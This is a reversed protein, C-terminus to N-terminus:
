DIAQAAAAVVRTGSTRGFLDFRAQLGGFFFFNVKPSPIDVAGAGTGADQVFFMSLGGAVVPAIAIEPTIRYDLGLRLRAIEWGTISTNPGTEPVLWLNRCGTSLGVFPDLSRAPRFHWDAYLGGTVSRVTTNQAVLDGQNLQAFTAYAGFALEPLMRYGVQLEFAGGPGSLDQVKGMQSGIDGTGQTYALGAGIELARSVTPMARDIGAGAEVPEEARAAPAGVGLALAVAVAMPMFPRTVFTRM